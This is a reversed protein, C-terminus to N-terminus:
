ANWSSSLMLAAACSTSISATTVSSPIMRHAVPEHLGFGGAEADLIQRGGRAARGAPVADAVVLCAVHQPILHLLTILGEEVVGAGLHRPDNGDHLDR